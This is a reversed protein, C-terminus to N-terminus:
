AQGTEASKGVVEEILSMFVEHIGYATLASVEQLSITNDQNWKSLDTMEPVGLVRKERKLDKKTGIVYKMVRSGEEEEKGLANSEEFESVSQIIKLLKRFSNVDSSDYVFIFAHIPKQGTGPEQHVGEEPKNEIIWKLKNQM